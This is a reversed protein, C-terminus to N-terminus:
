RIVLTKEREALNIQWIKKRPSSDFIGKQNNVVDQYSANKNLM